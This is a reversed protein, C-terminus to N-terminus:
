IAGNLQRRSSSEVPSLLRMARSEGTRNGTNEHSSMVSEVAKIYNWHLTKSFEDM